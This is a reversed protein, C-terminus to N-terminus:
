THLINQIVAPISVHPTMISTNQNNERNEEQAGPMFKSAVNFLHSRL